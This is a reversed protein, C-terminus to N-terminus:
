INLEKIVHSCKKCLKTDELTEFVNWCRVCAEGDFVSVSAKLTDSIKIHVDAVM